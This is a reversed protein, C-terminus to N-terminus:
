DVFNLKEIMSYVEEFDVGNERLTTALRISVYPGVREAVTGLAIRRSAIAKGDRSVCDQLSVTVKKGVPIRRYTKDILERQSDIQVQLGHLDARAQREKQAFGSADVAEREEWQGTDLNGVAVKRVGVTEREAIWNDLRAQASRLQEQLEHLRSKAATLTEFDNV